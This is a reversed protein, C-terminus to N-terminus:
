RVRLMYEPYGLEDRKSTLKFSKGFIRSQIKGNLYAFRGTQPFAASRAWRRYADHDVVSDPIVVREDIIVASVAAEM